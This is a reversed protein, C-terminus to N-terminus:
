LTLLKDLNLGPSKDKERKKRGRRGNHERRRRSVEFVM